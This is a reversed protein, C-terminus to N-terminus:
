ASEAIENDELRTFFGEAARMKLFGKDGCVPCPLVATAGEEGANAAACAPCPLLLTNFVTQVSKFLKLVKTTTPNVPVGESDSQMVEDMLQAELKTVAKNIEFILDVRSVEPVVVEEIDKIKVPRKAM